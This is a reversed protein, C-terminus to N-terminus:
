PAGAGGSPTTPTTVPAGTRGVLITVQSGKKAKSGGGPSQSQVIGEQSPTDVDEDTVKVTFGAGELTNTAGAEDDGTVDPVEVQDSAKAVM